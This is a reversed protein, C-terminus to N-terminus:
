RLTEEIWKLYTSSGATIPLGVIEPEEYPHLSRITREVEHYREITTKIICRWEEAIEIEGKWWYSSSTPGETQVCAALRKELLMKGIAAAHERTDITTIVQLCREM